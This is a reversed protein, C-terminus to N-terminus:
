SVYHNWQCESHRLPDSVVLCYGPSRHLNPKPTHNPAEEGDLVLSTMVVLRWIFDVKRRVYFDLRSITQQQQMSYSFSISWLLSKKQNATLEHPVWKVPKKVKWNALRSYFPQSTSNKLLKEQLQSLILTLSQERNNDVESPQGSHEEDELSKGGKCFKKFCWQVTHTNATGPGFTNNINHTTMAAKHGMKFESLFIAPIHMKDLMMEM